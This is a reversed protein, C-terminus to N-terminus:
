TKKLVISLISKREDQSFGIFCIVPFYLLACIIGVIFLSLYNPEIWYRTLIFSPVLTIAAIVTALLLRYYYDLSNMKLFRCIIMPIVIGHSIVGAIAMGTAVGLMGYYRVLALGIILNLVGEGIIIYALYKHQATAFLYRSNVTQSLMLWFYITNVVLAPYADLYDKGMWRTIFAAGWFILGFAIFSALYVSCKYGLQMTKMIMINDNRSHLMTLWTTLWATLALMLSMFNYSLTCAIMQYHTVASLSVFYGILLPGTRLILVGGINRILTFFGYGFLPKVESKHIYKPNVNFGPLTKKTLRYLIYFHLLVILVNGLSLLVLRGGFYLILVTQIAGFVRFALGCIEVLDSRIVGQVTGAFSNTPIKVMFAIGFIVIVVSFLNVDEMNPCFALAGASIGISIALGVIGVLGYLFLTTNSVIYCRKLDKKTYHLTVFRSTASYLGLDLLSFWATFTGALIYIGYHRDGLIRVIYPSLILGLILGFGLNLTSFGSGRLLKKIHGYDGSM